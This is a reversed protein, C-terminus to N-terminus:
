HESRVSLNSHDIRGRHHWWLPLLWVKGVWNFGSAWLDKKKALNFVAGGRSQGTQWIDTLRSEWDFGPWLVLGSTSHPRLWPWKLSIEGPQLPRLLLILCISCKFLSTRSQYLFKVRMGSSHGNPIVASTCSISIIKLATATFVGQLIQLCQKLPAKTWM